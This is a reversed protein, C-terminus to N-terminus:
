WIICVVRKKPSKTYFPEKFDRAVLIAKSVERTAARIVKTVKIVKTKRTEEWAKRERIRTADRATSAAKLKAIKAAKLDLDKKEWAKKEKAWPHTSNMLIIPTRTNGEAPVMVKMKRVKMAWKRLLNTKSNCGPAAKAKTEAKTERAVRIKDDKTGKTKSAKVAKTAKVPVTM